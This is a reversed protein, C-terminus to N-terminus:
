FYYCDFTLGSTKEAITDVPIKLAIDGSIYQNYITGDSGKAIGLKTDLTATVGDPLKWSVKESNSFTVNGTGSIAKTFSIPIDGFNGILKNDSNKSGIRSAIWWENIRSTIKEKEEDTLDNVSKYGSGDEKKIRYAPHTYYENKSTSWCRAFPEYCTFQITGEGKYLRNTNGETFPLYKLTATGTVKARYVKYPKEDFILDHIGKDGFHTRLM